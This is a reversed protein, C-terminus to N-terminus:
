SEGLLPVPESRVAPGRAGFIGIPTVSFIVAKHRSSKRILSTKILCSAGRTDRAESQHFGDSLVKGFPFVSQPRDAYAVGVEYCAARAGTLRKQVSPWSIKYASEGQAQVVSVLIRTDDWFRPAPPPESKEGIVWPEAVDEVYVEGKRLGTKKDPPADFAFDLRRIRVTDSYASVLLGQAARSAVASVEAANAFTESVEIGSLSGAQVLNADAQPSYCAEDTLALKEEGCFTLMKCLSDPRRAAVAFAFGNVDYQGDTRILRTSTGRFVKQFVKDLVEFQDKYGNKTVKGTLVVADVRNQRYFRFAKELMKTETIWGVEANAVVGLRAKTRLDDVTELAESVCGSFAAALSACVLERLIRLNM